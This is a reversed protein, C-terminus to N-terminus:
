RKKVIEWIEDMEELTMDVLAKGQESVEAEMGIFRKIFKASTGNLAQEPNVKLFRSL